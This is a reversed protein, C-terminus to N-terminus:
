MALVSQTNCAAGFYGTFCTCLGSSGDCIGRNSCVSYEKNGDVSWLSTTASGATAVTWKMANGGFNANPMILTTVYNGGSSVTRASVSNQGYYAIAPVARVAALIADQVFQATVGGYTTLTTAATAADTTTDDVVAGGVAQATLATDKRINTLNLPFITASLASGGALGTMTIVQVRQFPQAIAPSGRDATVSGQLVNMDPVNGSLTSFTVAFRLNENTSGDGTATVAVTGTISNPLAELAAKIGAEVAAKKAANGALDYNIKTKLTFDATDFPYGNYDWFRLRYTSEGDAGAGQGYSVVFNQVENACASGGCTSPTNTLPDDGRPCTRASCDYSDYGPDCACARHKEADWLRYVFYDQPGTYTNVGAVSDVLRKTAKTAAIEKVSRCIGHGSCDNPCTM